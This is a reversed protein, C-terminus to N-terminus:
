HIMGAIAEHFQSSTPAKPKDPTNAKIYGQYVAM